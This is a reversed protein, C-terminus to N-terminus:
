RIITVTFSFVQKYDSLIFWYVGSPLDRGNIKGQWNYFQDLENKRFKGIVEGKSNIISLKFDPALDLSWFSIMKWIDLYDNVGDGNPTLIFNGGFNAKNNVGEIYYPIYQEFPQDGSGISVRLRGRKTMVIKFTKVGFVSDNIKKVALSTGEDFLDINRLQEPEPNAKFIILNDRYGFSSIDDPYMNSVHITQEPMVEPRYVGFPIHYFLGTVASDQVLVSGEVPEINQLVDNITMQGNCSFIVPSDFIIYTSDDSAAQPQYLFVQQDGNVIIEIPEALPIPRSLYYVCSFDKLLFDSTFQDYNIPSVVDPTGINAIIGYESSDKNYGVRQTNFVLKIPKLHRIILSDGYDIFMSDTKFILATFLYKDLYKVAGLVLFDGNETLKVNAQNGSIVSDGVLYYFELRRGNRLVNNTDDVMCNIQVFRENFAQIDIEGQKADYSNESNSFKVNYKIDLSDFISGPVYRINTHNQRVGGGEFYAQVEYVGPCDTEVSTEDDYDPMYQFNYYWRVSDYSYDPIALTITQPELWLIEDPWKPWDIYVKFPMFSEINSSDLGSFVDILGSFEARYGVQLDTTVVDFTFDNLHVTDGYSNWIITSFGPDNFRPVVSFTVPVSLQITDPEHKFYVLPFWGSPYNFNNDIDFFSLDEVTLFHPNNLDNVFLLRGDVDRVALDGLPTIQLNKIEAENVLVTDLSNGQIDLAYLVNGRSLYLYRGGPAFEMAEISDINLSSGVEITHIDLQNDLSFRYLTLKDDTALAYVYPSDLSFASVRPIGNVSLWQMTSSVLNISDVTLQMISLIGNYVYVLYAKRIDPQGSRQPYFASITNSVNVKTFRASISTDVTLNALQMRSLSYVKLSDHTLVVPVIFSRSFDASKLKLLIPPESVTDGETRLDVVNYMSMDFISIVYMRTQSLACFKNAIFGTSSVPEDLYGLSNVVSGDTFNYLDQGIVFTGNWLIERRSTDKHGFGLEPAAVSLYFSATLVFNILILFLQRM